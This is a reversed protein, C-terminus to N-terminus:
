AWLQPLVTRSFTQQPTVTILDCVEVLEEPVAGDFHHLGPSIVADVAGARVADILRDVPEDTGAGFTVTKSLEYGLRKALSRLQAEDWAQSVGSVDKRLYGLAPPKARM